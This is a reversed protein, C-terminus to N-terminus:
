RKFLFAKRRSVKVEINNVFISRKGKKFIICDVHKGNILTNRNARIFGCVDLIEQFQKLLMSCTITENTTLHVTTLYGECVLHSITEAEIWTVKNKECIKIRKNQQASYDLDM